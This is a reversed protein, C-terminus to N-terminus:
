RYTQLLTFSVLSFLLCCSSPSVPFLSPFPPLPAATNVDLEVCGVCVQACMDMHTCLREAVRESVYVCGRFRGVGERDLTQTGSYTHM